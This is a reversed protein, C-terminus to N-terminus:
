VCVINFFLVYESAILQKFIYILKKSDKIFIYRIKLMLLMGSAM